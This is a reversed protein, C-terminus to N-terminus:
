GNPGGVPKPASQWAGNWHGAGNIVKWAGDVQQLLLPYTMTNEGSNFLGGSYFQTERVNVTALSGAIQAPDVEFVANREPDRGYAMGLDSAFQEVTRPYNTLQPSVYGYARVYDRKQLALLYNYAVDQPAAEARYAPETRHSLTTAVAAGAVLLAGAVIAFLFRDSGKM